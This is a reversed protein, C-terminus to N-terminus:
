CKPRAEACTTLGGLVDFEQIVSVGIGPPFGFEDVEPFVATVKGTMTRVEASPAEESVALIVSTGPALISPTALFLRDHAIVYGTAQGKIGDDTHYGLQIGRYGHVSPIPQSTETREFREAEIAKKVQRSSIPTGDDQQLCLASTRTARAREGIRRKQRGVVGMIRSEM